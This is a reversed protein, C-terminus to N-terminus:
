KSPGKDTALITSLTSGGIASCERGHAESWKVAVGTVVPRVMRWPWFGFRQSGNYQIIADAGSSRAYDVLKPLIDKIGGYTGKAVKLRRVVTYRLESPPQGALICFAGAAATMPIAQEGEKMPVIEVEADAGLAAASAASASSVSASAANAPPAVEQAVACTSFLAALALTLATSHM